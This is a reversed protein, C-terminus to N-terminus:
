PLATAWTRAAAAMLHGAIERGLDRANALFTEVCEDAEEDPVAATTAADRLV